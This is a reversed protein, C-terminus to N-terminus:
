RLGCLESPLHLKRARKAPVFRANVVLGTCNSSVAIVIVRAVPRASCVSSSGCAHM